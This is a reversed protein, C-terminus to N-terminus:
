NEHGDLTRDPTTYHCTLHTGQWWLMARGWTASPPSARWTHLTAAFINFLCDHVTSLHHDEPKPTPCPALLEEGNRFNVLFRPGPRIGQIFSRLSLFHIHSKTSPFNTTHIPCTREPCHRFFISRLSIPHSPITHIPNIQSLIPVQPPSKHVRYHVEPNWLISPLEQTAAWNAAEWSPSLEMLSSHSYYLSQYIVKTSSANWSIHGKHNM